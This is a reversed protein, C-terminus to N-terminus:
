RSTIGVQRRKRSTMFYPIIFLNLTGQYKFSNQLNPYLMSNPLKGLNFAIGLRFSSGVQRLGCPLMQRHPELGRRLKLVVFALFAPFEDLVDGEDTVLRELEGVVKDRLTPLVDDSGLKQLVLLLEPPAAALAVELPQGPLHRVDRGLEVVAVQQREARDPPELAAQEHGVEVKPVAVLALEVEAAEDEAEVAVSSDDAGALLKM